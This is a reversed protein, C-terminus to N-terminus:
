SDSFRSRSAAEPPMTSTMGSRVTTLNEHLDDHDLVLEEGALADYPGEGVGAVLDHVCHAVHRGHFCAM